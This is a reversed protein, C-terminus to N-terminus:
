GFGPPWPRPCLGGQPHPSPRRPRAPRSEASDRPPADPAGPRSGRHGQNDKRCAVGVPRELRGGGTGARPIPRGEAQGRGAGGPRPGSQAQGCGGGRPGRGMRPGRPSGRPDAREGAAGPPVHGDRNSRRTERQACLAHPAAPVERGAKRGPTEGRPVAHVCTPWQTQAWSAPAPAATPSALVLPRPCFTTTM